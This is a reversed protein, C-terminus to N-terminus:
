LASLPEPIAKQELYRHIAQVIEHFLPSQSCFHIIAIFSAAYFWCLYIIRNDPLFFIMPLVTLVASWALVLSPVVESAWRRVSLVQFCILMAILFTTQGGIFASIFVSFRAFNCNLFHLWIRARHLLYVAPDQKIREIWANRLLVYDKPYQERVEHEDLLLLPTNYQINTKGDDVYVYRSESNKMDETSVVLTLEKWLSFDRGLVSAIGKFADQQFLHKPDYHEQFVDPTLDDFSNGFTNPPNKYNKPAYYNLIFIDGYFQEHIPYLRYAQLVNYNLYHNFSILIGWLV